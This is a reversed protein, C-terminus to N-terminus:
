KWKFMSATPCRKAKHRAIVTGEVASSIRIQSRSFNFRNKRQVYEVLDAAAAIPPGNWRVILETAAAEHTLRRHLGFVEKAVSAMSEVVSEAPSILWLRTVTDLYPQLITETRAAAWLKKYLQQNSLGEKTKHIFEYTQRLCANSLGATPIIRQSELRRLSVEVDRLVGSSKSCRLAKLDSVRRIDGMADILKGNHSGKTAGRRDTGRERLLCNNRLM